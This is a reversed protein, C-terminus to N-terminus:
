VLFFFGTGVAVILVAIVAVIISARIFPARIEALDIKAVAGLDLVAVPEYAALVRVGRYDLGVVTGSRGSLARRMPVALKSNFPVPKPEGVYINKHELIYVIEDGQRMALTLEGTEGFGEYNLHAERIQSLTRNRAIDPNETEGIEYRVIAEMLRAQSKVTVVLRAREEEFATNYLITLAAATAIAAVAGMILVLFLIRKYGNM